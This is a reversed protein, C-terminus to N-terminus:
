TATMIGFSGDVRALLADGYIFVRYANADALEPTRRWHKALRLATDRPSKRWHPDVRVELEIIGNTYGILASSLCDFGRRPDTPSRSLTLQSAPPAEGHNRHEHM